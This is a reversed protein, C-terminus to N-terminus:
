SDYQVFMIISEDPVAHSAYGTLTKGPELTDTFRVRYTIGGMYTDGHKNKYFVSFDRSIPEGTINEVRIVGDDVTIKLDGEMKTPENEFFVTYVPTLTLDDSIKTPASKRSTEFAIVSEGSPITTIQFTYVEGGVTINIKAYQLTSGAVNKFTAAMVGKVDANSGDEPFKGDAASLKMLHLGNMVALPEDEKGGDTDSASTNDTVVDTDPVEGTTEDAPEDTASDSTTEDAPVDTEESSGPDTVAPTGGVATDTMDPGSVLPASESVASSENGSGSTVNRFILITLVAVLVLAVAAIIITLKKKNM